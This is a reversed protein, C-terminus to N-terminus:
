QLMRYLLLNALVMRQPEAKIKLRKMLLVIRKHNKEIVNYKTSGLLLAAKRRRKALEKLLAKKRNM